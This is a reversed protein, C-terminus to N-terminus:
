FMSYNKQQNVLFDLCHAPVSVSGYVISERQSYWTGVLLLVAQRLGAPLEGEILTDALPVDIAHSVADEGAEILSIIYSNDDTFEPDINLHKKCDDLTIYM